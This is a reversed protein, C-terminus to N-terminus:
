DLAKVLRFTVFGPEDLLKAHDKPYSLAMEPAPLPEVLREIWFGAAAFEACSQTLPLRWYRVQWGRQWTEEIAETAFYSGGQRRWDAVPHHTSLVLRGLPRLVRRIERLAGVRDDLHHIVLAM